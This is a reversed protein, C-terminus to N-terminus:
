VKVYVWGEQLRQVIREVASTGTNVETIVEANLGKAKLRDLANNCAVFSVNNYTRMLHVIRNEFPSVGRRMLDIGGSNAVVEIQFPVETDRYRRIVYDVQDLTKKLKEPESSSIHLVIKNPQSLDVPSLKLGNISELDTMEHLADYQGHGLWGAVAGVVIALMAAAGYRVFANGRRSIGNEGQGPVAVQGYSQKLQKKLECISRAEERLSADLEMAQRFAEKDAGSLEGDVYANIIEDSYQLKM